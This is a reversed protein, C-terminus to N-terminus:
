ENEQSEESEALLPTSTKEKKHTITKAIIGFFKTTKSATKAGSAEIVVDAAVQAAKGAIKAIDIDLEKNTEQIESQVKKVARVFKSKGSVLRMATNIFNKTEKGSAFEIFKETTTFYIEAKNKNRIIHPSDKYFKVEETKYIEVEVDQGLFRKTKNIFVFNFNTLILESETKKLLSAKPKKDNPWLIVTGHYLVVEDQQLTYHEM